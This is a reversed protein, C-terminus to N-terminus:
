PAEVFHMMEVPEEIRGAGDAKVEALHQQRGAGTGADHQQQSEGEGTDDQELGQQQTRRDKVM